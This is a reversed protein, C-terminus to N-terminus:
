RGHLAQPACPPFPVAPVGGPNCGMLVVGQVYQAPGGVGTRLEVPAVVRAQMISRQILQRRDGFRVQHLVKVLGNGGWAQSQRLQLLM